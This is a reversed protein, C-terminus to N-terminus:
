LGFNAEPKRQSIAAVDTISVIVIQQWRFETEIARFYGNHNVNKSRRASKWLLIAYCSQLDNKLLNEQGIQSATGIAYPLEREECAAATTMLGTMYIRCHMLNKTKVSFKNRKCVQQKRARYVFVRGYVLLTRRHRAVIFLHSSHGFSERDLHDLASNWKWKWWGLPSKINKDNVATAATAGASKLNPAM